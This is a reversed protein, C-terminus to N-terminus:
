LLSVAIMRREKVTVAFRPAEAQGLEGMARRSPFRCLSLQSLGSVGWGAVHSPFGRLRNEPQLPFRCPKAQGRQAPERDGLGMPRQAVPLVEAARRGSEGRRPSSQRQLQPWVAWRPPQGSQSSSVWCCRLEGDEQVEDREVKAFGEPM